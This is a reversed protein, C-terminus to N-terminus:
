SDYVELTSVEVAFGRFFGEKLYCLQGRNMWTLILM